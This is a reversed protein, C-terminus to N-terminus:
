STITFDTDPYTIVIEWPNTLPNLLTIGMKWETSESVYSSSCGSHTFSFLSRKGGTMQATVVLARKFINVKLTSGYGTAIVFKDNSPDVISFLIDSEIETSIPNKFGNIYFGATDGALINSFYPNTISIKSAGVAVTLSCTPAASINSTGNRCTLTGSAFYPDAASFRDPLDIIIKFNSTLDFGPNFEVLLENASGGFIETQPTFTVLNFTAPKYSL